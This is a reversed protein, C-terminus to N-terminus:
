HEETHYKESSSSAALSNDGEREVKLKKINALNCNIYAKGVVQVAAVQKTERRSTSTYTRMIHYTRSCASHETNSCMVNDDQREDYIQRFSPLSAVRIDINSVLM